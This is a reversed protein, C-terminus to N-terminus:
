PAPRVVPFVVGDRAFAGVVDDPLTGDEARVPEM